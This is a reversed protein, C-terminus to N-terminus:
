EETTTGVRLLSAKAQELLWLVEPGSAVSSAFYFDGDGDYGIIVVDQMDGPVSGVVRDAPLNLRTIGPFLIVGDSAM